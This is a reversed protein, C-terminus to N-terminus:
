TSKNTHLKGSLYKGITTPDIKIKQIKKDLANLLEKNKRYKKFEHFFTKTIIIKYM